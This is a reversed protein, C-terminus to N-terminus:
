SSTWNRRSRHTCWSATCKGATTARTVVVSGMNADALGTPKVMRRVRGYKYEVFVRLHEQFERGEPLNLIVPNEKAQETWYKPMAEDKSCVAAGLM